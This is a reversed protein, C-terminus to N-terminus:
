KEEKRSIEYSMRTHNQFIGHVRLNGRLERIKLRELSESFNSIKRFARIIQFTISKLFLILLFVQCYLIFGWLMCTHLTKGPIGM